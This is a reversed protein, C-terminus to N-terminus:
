FSISCLCPQLCMCYISLVHSLTGTRLKPHFLLCFLQLYFWPYCRWLYALCRTSSDEWFCFMQEGSVSCTSSLLLNEKDLSLQPLCWSSWACLFMQAKLIFHWWPRRLVVYLLDGSTAAVWDWLALTETLIQLIDYRISQPPIVRPFTMHQCNQVLHLSM